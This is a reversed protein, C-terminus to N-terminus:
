PNQRYAELIARWDECGAKDAVLILKGKGYSFEMAESPADLFFEGSGNMVERYIRPTRSLYVNDVNKVFLNHTTIVSGGSEIFEILATELAPKHIVQQPLILTKVKQFHQPTQFIQVPNAPAYLARYITDIVCSQYVLKERYSGWGEQALAWSCDFDYYLGIDPDTHQIAKASQHDLNWQKVLEYNATPAGTITLMSQMSQEMGAPFPNLKFFYLWQVGRSELLEMESLLDPSHTGYEMVWNHTPNLSRNLDAYFAIQHKQTSYLDFGAVNLELNLEYSDVNDGWEYAFRNTCILVQPNHSKILSAQMNSFSVISASSFRSFELELSPHHKLMLTANYRYPLILQDFRQYDLSWFANGWRKNLKAVNEYKDELYAQFDERCFDCYCRKQEGGMENDIQWAVVNPHNAYRAALKDVIIRSHQNYAPTNYCRHQRAGFTNRQKDSNVPLIEPHKEVLWIPPAATPTCMVVQIGYRQALEICDDFCHFDYQGEEPELTSWAFEGMRIRKIGADVLMEFDVNWSERPRQEPYYSVGIQMAPGESEKMSPAPAKKVSETCGMSLLLVFLIGINSLRKM